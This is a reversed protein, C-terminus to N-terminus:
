FNTHPLKMTVYIICSLFFRLYKYIYNHKYDAIVCCNKHMSYFGSTCIKKIVYVLCMVYIYITFLNCISKFAFMNLYLICQFINWINKWIIEM